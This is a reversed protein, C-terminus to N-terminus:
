SMSVKIYNFQQPNLFNISQWVKQSDNNRIFVKATDLKSYEAPIPSGVIYIMKIPKDDDLSVRFLSGMGKGQNISHLQLTKSNNWSNNWSNHPTQNNDLKRSSSYVPIIGKIDLDDLDSTLYIYKGIVYDKLKNDGDSDEYSVNLKNTDLNRTYFKLYDQSNLILLFVISFAIILSMTLGMRCNQDLMDETTVLPIDSLRISESRNQAVAGLAPRNSTM